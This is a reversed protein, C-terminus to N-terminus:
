IQTKGPAQFSGEKGTDPAPGWGVERVLVSGRRVWKAHTDKDRAWGRARFGPSAGARRRLTLAGPAAPESPIAVLEERRPAGGQDHTPTQAAHGAGGEAAAGTASRASRGECSAWPELESRGSSTPTRRHARATRFGPRVRSKGPGLAPPGTGRYPRPAPTKARPRPPPAAPEQDPHHWHDDRPAESM